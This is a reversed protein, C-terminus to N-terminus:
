NTEVQESKLPSTIEEEEEILGGKVPSKEVDNDARSRKNSKTPSFSSSKPSGESDKDDRLSRNENEIIDKEVELSQPQVPQDLEQINRIAVSSQGSRKSKKTEHLTLHVQKLGRFAVGLSSDLIRM